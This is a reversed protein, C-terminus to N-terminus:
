AVILGMGIALIATITLFLVGVAYDSPNEFPLPM